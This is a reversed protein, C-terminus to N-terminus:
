FPLSITVSMNLPKTFLSNRPNTRHDEGSGYDFGAHSTDLVALLAASQMLSDGGDLISGGYPWAPVGSDIRWVAMRSSWFRDAMRGHPFGLISGARGLAPTCVAM